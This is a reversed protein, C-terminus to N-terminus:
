IRCFAKELNSFLHSMSFNVWSNISTRLFHGGDDVVVEAIRFGDFVHQGIETYFGPDAGNM